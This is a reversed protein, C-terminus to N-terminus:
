RLGYWLKYSFLAINHFPFYVGDEKPIYTFAKQTGILIFFIGAILIWIKAKRPIRIEKQYLLQMWFWQFTDRFNEQDGFM